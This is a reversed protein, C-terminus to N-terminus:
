LEDNKRKDITELIAYWGHITFIVSAMLLVILGVTYGVVTMLKIIFGIYWEMM